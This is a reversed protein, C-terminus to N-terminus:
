STPSASAKFAEIRQDKKEWVERIWNQIKERIGANEFYQGNAMENLLEPPFFIEEVHVRVRDVRGSFLGWLSAAGEPYFITVDLFSHFQKGMADLVFAVGGAKPILLNKYPSKLRDHKAKTLRTGELFNLVSIKSGSFRECAKRTTKLDEGRKEPHKELYSKSYRKMFPFDLAWWAGGLFPVWILQSKLFFRLFPIRRNFVHQLVVIDIWSQHNACVLYSRDRRLDKLGTIQWDIEHMLSAEFSNFGIWNEAFGIM